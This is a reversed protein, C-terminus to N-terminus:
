LELLLFIYYFNKNNVLKYNCINMFIFYKIYLINIYVILFFNYIFIIIERLWSLYKIVYFLFSGLYEIFVM